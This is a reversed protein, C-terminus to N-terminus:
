GRSALVLTYYEVTAFSRFRPVLLAATAMLHECLEALFAVFCNGVDSAGPSVQMAEVRAPRTPSGSYLHLAMEAAKTGLNVMATWLICSM